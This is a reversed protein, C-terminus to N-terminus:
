IGFYRIFFTWPDDKPTEYPVEIIGTKDSYGEVFFGCGGAGFGPTKSFGGYYIFIMDPAAVHSREALLDNLRDTDIRCTKGDMDILSFLEPIDDTNFYIDGREDAVAIYNDDKTSYHYSNMRILVFGAVLLLTVFVTTVLVTERKYSRYNRVKLIRKKMKDFGSDLLGPIRKASICAKNTTLRLVEVSELLMMGYDIAANGSERISVKDCIDELDNRFCPRLLWWLPNIFMMITLLDYIEYFWLHLLRIHTWEHLLVLDLRDEEFEEFVIKPCVIRPHFLGVAFPTVCLETLLVKTGKYETIEMSKLLCNLKIKNRIHLVFLLLVGSIYIHGLWRYNMVIATWRFFIRAGLKTNYYLFLKPTFPVLLLVTWLLGRGFTTKKFASGRLLLVLLLVPLSLIAMRGLLHAYYVFTYDIIRITYYEVQDASM